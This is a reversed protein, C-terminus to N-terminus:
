LMVITNYANNFLAYALVLSLSAFFIIIIHIISSYKKKDRILEKYLARYCFASYGINIFGMFIAAFAHLM